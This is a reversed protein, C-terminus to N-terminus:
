FIHRCRELNEHDVVTTIDPCVQTRVERAQLSRKDMMTQDYHVFYQGALGYNAVQYLESANTSMADLDLFSDIRKTLRMAAPTQEETIWTQESM